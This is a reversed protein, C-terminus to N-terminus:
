EEHIGLEMLKEPTPIGEDSWGRTRYYEDLMPGLPPLNQGAGGDRRPQALIRMPLVDDKRSIGCRVNYMRKLNYLREGTQMFEDMTMDWGTAANLWDTLDHVDIGGNLIFKCVKLSDFMSMLNQTKAALEGKREVAFRDLVEPFGMDPSKLGREFAYSFGQLHCAGRNSTAYGVGLSNYARPDHAPFDLGKVHIAYEKAMGGITEAAHRTGEALLAGIGQRHAIQEVLQIVAEGDGWVLPKGLTDAETIIGKEFCEM